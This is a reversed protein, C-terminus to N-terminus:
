AAWEDWFGYIVRPNSGYFKWHLSPRSQPTFLKTLSRSKRLRQGIIPVDGWTYLRHRRKARDVYTIGVGESVRRLARYAKPVDRRNLGLLILMDGSSLQAGTKLWRREKAFGDLRRGFLGDYLEIYEKALRAGLYGRLLTPQGLRTDIDRIQCMTQLSWREAIMEIYM